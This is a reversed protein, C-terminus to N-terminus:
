GNLKEKHDETSSLSDLLQNMFSDAAAVIQDLQFQLTQRKVQLDQVQSIWYRQNETLSAPDYETGEINIVNNTTETM